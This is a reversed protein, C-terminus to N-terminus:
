VNDTNYFHFSFTADGERHPVAALRRYFIFSLSTLSVSQEASLTLFIYGMFFFNNEKRREGQM